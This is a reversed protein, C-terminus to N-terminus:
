LLRSWEAWARTLKMGRALGFTPAYGLWQRAKAISVMTAPVYIGLQVTTPFILPKQSSGDGASKRDLLRDKIGEMKEKSAVTKITRYIQAIGPLGLVMQRLAADQRLTQLLRRAPRVARARVALAALIEAESMSTTSSCGLMAEYAGYYEKWSVAPDGSILFVEGEVGDAVAARLIARVVDDLYVANCSGRGGEPLVFVGNRLQAIPGVSWGTFPGYVITPQLVAVPMGRERYLRLMEQEGALKSAGYADQGPRRPATEDLTSGSPRGYVSITSLHVLRRVGQRIMAEGINRAMMRANECREDFNGEKPFTCDIVIQQGAMARELLLPDSVDGHILDVPYRVIRVAKALNRVVVSVRAQCAEVLLEVVRSGIVGSGGLVLINMGRLADILPDTM